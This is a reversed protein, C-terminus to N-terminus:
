QGTSKDWLKYEEQFSPIFHDIMKMWIKDIAIRKASFFEREPLSYGTEGWDIIGSVVGDQILINGPRLDGHTMVGPSISGDADYSLIQEKLMEEAEGWVGDPRSLRLAEAVAHKYELSQFPGYQKPPLADVSGLFSSRLKRWELVHSQLQQVISYRENPSLYKWCSSLTKGDIKDM